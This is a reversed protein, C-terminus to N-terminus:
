ESDEEEDDDEDESDYEEDSDDGFDTSNIRANNNWITVGANVGFIKIFRMIKLARKGINKRVYASMELTEERMEKLDQTVAVHYGSLDLRYGAVEHRGNFIACVIKLVFNVTSIIDDASKNDELNDSMMKLVEKAQSLSKKVKKPNYHPVPIGQSIMSTKKKEIENIIELHANLEKKDSSGLKVVGKMGSVVPDNFEITEDSEYGSSEDGSGSESESESKSETKSKKSFSISEDSGSSSEDDSSGFLEGALETYESPPAISADVNEIDQIKDQRVNDNNIVDRLGMLNSNKVNAM